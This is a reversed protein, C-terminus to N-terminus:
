NKQTNISNFDVSEEEVEGGFLLTLSEQLKDDAKDGEGCLVKDELRPQCCLFSGIKVEASHSVVFANVNRLFIWVVALQGGEVPSPVVQRFSGGGDAQRM